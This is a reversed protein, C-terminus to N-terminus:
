SSSCSVLRVLQILLQSDASEPSPSPVADSAAPQSGWGKGLGVVLSVLPVAGAGSFIQLERVGATPLVNERVRVCLKARECARVFPVSRVSDSKGTPSVGGVESIYIYIYIHTYIYTDYLMCIYIYIYLIYIYGYSYAYVCTYTYIVM